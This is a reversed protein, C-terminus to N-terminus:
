ENPPNQEPSRFSQRIPQKQAPHLVTNVLMKITKEAFGKQDAPKNTKTALRLLGVGAGLILVSPVCALLAPAAGIAAGVKLGTAAGDGAATKISEKKSIEESEKKSIAGKIAGGSAGLPTGILVGAGASILGGLLIPIASGLGAIVCLTGFFGAAGKGFGIAVAKPSLDFSKSCKSFISTKNAASSIESRQPATKLPFHMSVEHLNDPFSFNEISSERSRHSTSSGTFAPGSGQPTTPTGLSTDM